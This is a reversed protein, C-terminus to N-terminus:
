FLFPKHPVVNKEQHDNGRSDIGWGARGRGYVAEGVLVYIHLTGWGVCEGVLEYLYLLLTYKGPFLCFCLIDSQQEKSIFKGM